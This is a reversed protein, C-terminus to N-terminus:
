LLDDRFGHAPRNNLFHAELSKKCRSCIKEVRKGNQLSEVEGAPRNKKCKDCEM